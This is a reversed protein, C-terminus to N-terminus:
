YGGEEHGGHVDGPTAPVVPVVVTTSLPDSTQGDLTRLLRVVVYYTGPVFGTVLDNLNAGNVTKTDTVPDVSTDPPSSEIWLQWTDAPYQDTSSNTYQALVRIGGGAQPIAKLNIPDTVPPLIWNGAHDVTILTPRQNVSELGYADRSRVVVYFTQTLGVPPLFPIPLSLPLSSGGGAPAQTFDPMQGTGIYVVYGLNSDNAVRYYGAESSGNTASFTNLVRYYGEQSVTISFISPPLRHPPAQWPDEVRRRSREEAVILQQLINPTPGPPRDGSPPQMLKPLIFPAEGDTRARPEWFQDPYRTPPNDPAAGPIPIPWKARVQFPADGDRSVVRSGNYQDIGRPNPSDVIIVISDPLMRPVSVWPAVGDRDYKKVETTQQQDHVIPIYQVINAPLVRTRSAYLLVVNDVEARPRVKEVIYQSPQSQRLGTSGIPTGSPPIIREIRQVYDYRRNPLPDVYQDPAHSFVPPPIFTPPTMRPTPIQAVEDRLQNGAEYPDIYPLAFQRFAQQSDQWNPRRQQPDDENRQRTSYEQRDFPKIWEQLDQWNLRRQQPNDDNRQRTSYEQRDFPRIREQSEQWNARRQHPNDDKIARSVQAVIDQATTKLWQQSDQWNSRRQQPNDDRRPTKVSEIAIMQATSTTTLIQGSSGAPTYTITIRVADVRMNYTTKAGGATFSIAVGFTSANVDTDALTNGWLDGPAISYFAFSLGTSLAGGTAKNTGGIVGGKVLKATTEACATRGSAHSLDWEAQIATPTDGASLAFSFGTAKLFHSVTNATPNIAAFSGDAVGQANAPLTWALTGVGSDDAATGAYNPGATAM